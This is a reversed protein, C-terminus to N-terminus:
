SGKKGATTTSLGCCTIHGNDWTMTGYHLNNGDMCLTTSGCNTDYFAEEAQAQTCFGLFNLSLDLNKGNTAIAVNFILVVALTFISFSLAIKKKM